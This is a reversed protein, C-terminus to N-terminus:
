APVLEVAAAADAAAVVAVVAVVAAAVVAVVAAGAAVAVAPATLSPIFPQLYLGAPVTKCDKIHLVDTCHSSICCTHVAHLTNVYLSTPYCGSVPAGKPEQLMSACLDLVLM